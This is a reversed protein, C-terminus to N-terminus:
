VPHIGSLNYMTVTFKDSGKAKIRVGRWADKNNATSKM